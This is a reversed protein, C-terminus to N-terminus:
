EMTRSMDHCQAQLESRLQTAQAIEPQLREQVMRGFNKVRSSQEASEAERQKLKVTQEISHASVNGVYQEMHHM